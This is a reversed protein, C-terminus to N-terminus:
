GACRPLVMFAVATLARDVIRLRLGLIMGWLRLFAPAAAGAELLTAICRGATEDDRADIARWSVCCLSRACDCHRRDLAVVMASRTWRLAAPLPSATRRRQFCPESALAYGACLQVFWALPGGFLRFLDRCAEVPERPPPRPEAVHRAAASMACIGSLAHCLLHHVRVAVRRRRFALLARRRVRRAPSAPQFLRARDLAFLALLVVSGVFVHAIHFGTTVFYLSAYSSTGLGYTKAQWELVQVAVFVAGM